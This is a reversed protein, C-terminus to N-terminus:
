STAERARAMLAVLGERATKELALILVVYVVLGVGIKAGLTGIRGALHIPAVLAYMTAAVAAARAAVAWPIVVTLHRSGARTMWVLLAMYSALTALAAGEIGRAPILLVNLGLNLIASLVVYRAVMWTRKGIFVGAGTLAVAGNAILGAAVYPIVAAGASYKESALLTLLDSGIASLGAVVPMALLVYYRLSRDLFARTRLEGSEEWLRLYIPLIALGWPTVLVAEVYQCLNYAAAYTGLPGPGLLGQIVYRDGLSLIIGSVEWGLMMPVGYRLMEVLLPASFARLTPAAWGSGARFVVLGLVLVAVFESIIQATYFVSLERGILLLSAIMLGLGLYKKLVQYTTLLGSQQDARLLSVFASDVVQLLILAAILAFLGRLHKDGLWAIPLLGVVALWALAFILGMVAMGLVATSVFRERGLTREDSGNRSHFRVVAHQLGLKGVAVLIGLTVSVLNM